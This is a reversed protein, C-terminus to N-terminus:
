SAVDAAEQFMIPDQTAVERLIMWVNDSGPLRDILRKRCAEAEVETAFRLQLIGPGFIKSAGEAAMADWCQQFTVPDDKRLATGIQYPLMGAATAEPFTLGSALAIKNQFDTSEAKEYARHIIATRAELLIDKWEDWIVLVRLRGQGL